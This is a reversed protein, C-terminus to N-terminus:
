RFPFPADWKWYPSNFMTMLYGSCVSTLNKSSHCIFLFGPIFPTNHPILSYKSMQMAIFHIVTVGVDKDWFCKLISYIFNKMENEFLWHLGVHDIYDIARWISGAVQPSNHTAMFFLIIVTLSM